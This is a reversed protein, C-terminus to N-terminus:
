GGGGKRFKQRKNTVGKTERRGKKDDRRRLVSSPRNVSVLADFYQSFHFPLIHTVRAQSSHNSLTYSLLTFNIFLVPTPSRSLCPTAPRVALLPLCGDPAPHIPSRNVLLCTSPLGQRGQTCLISPPYFRFYLPVRPPQLLALLADGSEALLGASPSVVISCASEGEM